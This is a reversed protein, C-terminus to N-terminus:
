RDPPVLKNITLIAGFTMTTTPSPLWTGGLHMLEKLLRLQENM